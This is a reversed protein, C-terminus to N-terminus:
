ELSSLVSTSTPKEFVALTLWKPDDADSGSDSNTNGHYTAVLSTFSVNPRELLGNKTLGSGDIFNAYDSVARCSEQFSVWPAVALTKHDFLGLVAMSSILLGTAITSCRIFAKKSFLKEGFFIDAFHNFALTCILAFRMRDYDAVTLWWSEFRTRLQRKQEDRLWVDDLFKAVLIPIGVLACILLILNYM